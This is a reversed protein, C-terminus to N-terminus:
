ATLIIPKAAPLKKMPRATSRNPAAVDCIAAAASNPAPNAAAANAGSIAVSVTIWRATPNPDDTLKPGSIASMDWQNM